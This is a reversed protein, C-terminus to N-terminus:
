HQCSQFNVQSRIWILHMNQWSYDCWWELKLQSLERVLLVKMLWCWKLVKNWGRCNFILLNYNNEEVALKLIKSHQWDSPKDVLFSPHKDAIWLQSLICGKFLLPINFWGSGLFPVFTLPQGCVQLWLDCHSTVKIYVCILSLFLVALWRNTLDSDIRDNENYGWM